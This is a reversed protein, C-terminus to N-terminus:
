LSLSLNVQRKAEELPMVYYQDTVRSGPTHGLWEQLVRQPVRLELAMYTAAVKRLTKPTVHLPAGGRRIDAARVATAFAKKINDIPKDPSVGAFVYRGTKPLRRIEDLLPGRIYIRRNSSKTKPTWNENARIEVVGNIEDVRDWTLNFAEGSRCGTEALFRV